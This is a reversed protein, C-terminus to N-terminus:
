QQQEDGEQELQVVSADSAWVTIVFAAKLMYATSLCTHPWCFLLGPFMCLINLAFICYEPICLQAVGVYLRSAKGRANELVGRYASLLAITYLSAMTFAVHNLPVWVRLYVHAFIAVALFNLGTIM